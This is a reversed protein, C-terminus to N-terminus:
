RKRRRISALAPVLVLTFASPEPVASAVETTPIAAGGLAPGTALQGGYNSALNGLDTVDVAGDGNTDGQVWIAGSTAGYSSALNGLDSVDAKGDLNTDGLLTFRIEVKGGGIDNYGLAGGTSTTVIKGDSLLQQASSVTGVTILENNTLNLKANPGGSVAGIQLVVPTFPFTSSNITTLGNTGM